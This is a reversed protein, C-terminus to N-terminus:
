LTSILTYNPYKKERMIVDNFPFGKEANSARQRPFEGTVPSNGRVFSLLTPIKHKMQGTGSCITLYVILVGTIQSVTASM